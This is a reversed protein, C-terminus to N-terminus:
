IRAGVKLKQLMNVQHYHSVGLTFICPEECRERGPALYFRGAVNTSQDKFNKCFEFTKRVTNGFNIEATLHM